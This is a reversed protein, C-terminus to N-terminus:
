QSEYYLPIKKRPNADPDDEFRFRLDHTRVPKGAAKADIFLAAMTECTDGLTYIGLSVGHHTMGHTQCLTEAKNGLSPDLWTHIETPGGWGNNSATGIKKFEAQGATGDLVMIDARFSLCDDHGPVERTDALGLLFGEEPACYIDIQPYKKRNAM